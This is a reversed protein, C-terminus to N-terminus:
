NLKRVTRIEWKESGSLKSSVHDSKRRWILEADAQMKQENVAECKGQIHFTRLDL